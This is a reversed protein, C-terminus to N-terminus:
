QRPYRSDRNGAPFGLDAERYSHLNKSGVEAFRSDQLQRAREFFRVAEPGLSEAVLKAARNKQRERDLVNAAIRLVDRTSNMASMVSVRMATQASHRKIENRRLIRQGGYREHAM